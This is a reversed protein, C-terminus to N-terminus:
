NNLRIKDTNIDYIFNIHIRQKHRETLLIVANNMEKKIKEGQGEFLHLVTVYSDIINRIADQKQLIKKDNLKKIIDFDVIELEKFIFEIRYKWLRNLNFKQEKTVELGRIKIVQVSIKLISNSFFLWNAIYTKSNYYNFELSDYGMISNTIQNEFDATKYVYQCYLGHKDNAYIKVLIKKIEDVCTNINNQIQQINKYFIYKLKDKNASIDNMLVNIYNSILLIDQLFQIIVKYFHSDDITEIRKQYKKITFFVEDKIDELTDSAFDKSWYLIMEIDYDAIVYKIPIESIGKLTRNINSVLINFSEVEIFNNKWKNKITIQKNLTIVPKFINMKANVTIDQDKSINMRQRICKIKRKIFEPYNSCSKIPLLMLLLTFVIMKHGRHSYVNLLETERTQIINYFFMIQLSEKNIQLVSDNYINRIM